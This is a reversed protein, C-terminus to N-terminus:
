KQLNQPEIGELGRSNLGLDFQAAHQVLSVVNGNADTLSNNIPRFGSFSGDANAYEEHRLDNGSVVAHESNQVQHMNTNSFTVNVFKTSHVNADKMVVNTLDAGELNAGSLDAGELNAGTLDANSLNAGILTAHLLNVGRLNAGSLNVGSLVAGSLNAEELVLGSMDKGSSLTVNSFNVSTLSKDKLVHFNVNSLNNAQSFDVGNVNAGDLKVGSLDANTLNCSVDLTVGSLDAGVLHANTLDVNVLSLGDLHANNLHTGVLHVSTLEGSEVKTLDVGTLNLGNLNIHSFKKFVKGSLASLTDVSNQMDVGSLDSGSLDTGTLVASHLSVGELKIGSLDVNTLNASKLNVHSFDASPDFIADVLTANEFDVGKLNKVTSFDVNTLNVNTLHASSLDSNEFIDTNNALNTASNFNAHQLESNALVVNNLNASNLKANHLKVGSMDVGSMDAERLDINHMAVGTLHTSELNARVLSAHMLSVGSLDLNSLNAESGFNVHDLILGISNNLSHNLSLKKAATDMSLNAGSLDTKTVEGTVPEVAGNFSIDVLSANSLNAGELSLGALDVGSITSGSAKLNKLNKADENHKLGDAATHYPEDVKLLNVNVLTANTLDTHFLNCGALNTGTLDAGVLNAGSLDTGNLSVDVTSNLVAGQLQAEVMSLNHLDTKAFTVNEFVSGDLVTEQSDDMVNFDAGELSTDKFVVNTLNGAVCVGPTFDVNEFRGGSMDPNGLNSAFISSLKLNKFEVGTLSAEAFRVGSLMTDQNGTGEFVSHNLSSQMLNVEELKTRIFKGNEVNSKELNARTFTADTFDAHSVNTGHQFIVGSFDANNFKAYDLTDSIANFTNGDKVIIELGSADVNTMDVNSMDANIWEGNEQYVFRSDVITANTLNVNTMDSVIVSNTLDAGSMDVGSFDIKMWRKPDVQDTTGVNLNAGQFNYLENNGNYSKLESYVQGAAARKVNNEISYDFTTVNTIFDTSVPNSQDMYSGDFLYNLGKPMVLGTISKGAVEVVVDGAINKVGEFITANLNCNNLNVNHMVCGSFDTNSLNSGTFDVDVLVSGKFDTGTLDTHKFQCKHFGLNSLNFGALNTDNFEMHSMNKIDFQKSGSGLVPDVYEVRLEGVGPLDSEFINQFIDGNNASSGFTTKNFKTTTQGNVPNFGHIKAGSLTLGSVNASTFNVGRLDIKDFNANTMLAGSLDVGQNTSSFESEGSGIITFHTEAVLATFNYGTTTYFRNMQATQKDFDGSVGYKPDSLGAINKDRKERKALSNYAWYGGNFGFQTFSGTSDLWRTEGNGKVLKILNAQSNYDWTTTAQGGTDVNIGAPWLASNWNKIFAFNTNQIKSFRFDCGGVDCGSFDANTLDANVFNAGKVGDMDGQVQDKTNTFKVNTCNSYSLNVDRLNTGTVDMDTIDQGMLNIRRLNEDVFAKSVDVFAHGSFVVDSNYESRGVIDVIGKQGNVKDSTPYGRVKELFTPMDVKNPSNTASDYDFGLPWKAKDANKMGTFLVNSIDSNSFNAGTVDVGSFNVGSLDVNSFDVNQLVVNPKFVANELTPKTYNVGNLELHGGFSSDTLNENDFTVGKFNERGADLQVKLSPTNIIGDGNEIVSFDVGVPWKALNANTAGAFNTNEFKADKHEGLNDRLAQTSTVNVKGENYVEISDVVVVGENYPVVNSVAVNGEYYHGTPIGNISGTSTITGEDYLRSHTVTITGDIAEGVNTVTIRGDEAHKSGTVTFNGVGHEVVSSVIIEGERYSESSNVSFTGDNPDNVVSNVTIRGDENFKSASVTFTGDNVESVNNVTVRGDASFKAASVTMTGDNVAGVGTVTVRGDANFKAASVTMTGDNVAGVTTVNVRGDANFKAASVTLQGLSNHIASSVTVTNESHFNTASVNIPVNEVAARVNSILIEGDHEMKSYTGISPAPIPGLENVGAKLPLTASNSTHGEPVTNGVEYEYNNIELITGPTPYNLTGSTIATLTTASLTLNYWSGQITVDDIGPEDIYQSVVESNDSVLQFRTNHPNNSSALGVMSTLDIAKITELSGVDSLYLVGRTPSAVTSTAVVNYISHTQNNPFYQTNGTSVLKVTEGNAPANGTWNDGLTVKLLRQNTAVETISEIEGESGTMYSSSGGIHTFTIAGNTGETSLPPYFVGSFKAINVVIENPADNVGNFGSYTKAVYFFRIVGGQTQQLETGRKLTQETGTHVGWFNIGANLKIRYSKTEGVINSNMVSPIADVVYDHQHLNVRYMGPIPTINGNEITIETATGAANAKVTRQIGSLDTLTDSNMALGNQLGAGQLNVISNSIDLISETSNGSQYYWTGTKMPTKSIDHSIHIHSDPNAGLGTYDQSLTFSNGSPDVIQEGNSIDAGHDTTLLSKSRDINIEYVGQNIIDGNNNIVVETAGQNGAIAVNYDDGNDNTFTTSTTINSNHTSLTLKTQNPNYVEWQKNNNVNDSSVSTNGGNLVLIDNENAHDFPQALDWAGGSPDEIYAPLAINSNFNTTLLSKSRDINIAYSGTNLTDGNNDVEISTANADADVAIFYDVDTADNTIKTTRTLATNHGTTLTLESHVPNPNIIWTGTKMVANNAHGIKVDGGSFADVLTYVVGSPDVVQTGNAINSNHNTTLLSKSRDINVAYTGNVLTDGNNNVFLDTATNTADEALIYDVGSADNTLKTVNKTLATGHAAHLTLKSQAHNPNIIWTGTNMVANTTHGIEVDSHTAHEYKRSLTYESGTSDVVVTGNEIDSNHDTTLLSKSRIINVAYTGNVLTDGNNSVFLDTATNTADEALTYDIGSSENTIKTVNKQLASGHTAALSLKTQDYTPNIQWTGPGSTDIAPNLGHAVVVNASNGGAPAVYDSDVTYIRKNPAGISVGANIGANHTTTLLSKSRDINVVYDGNSISNNGNNFVYLSNATAAANESLHMDNSDGVKTVTNTTNLSTSHTSSLGLESVSSGRPNIKWTKNLGEVHQGEVNLKNDGSSYDHKLRWNNGSADVLNVNCPINSTHPTTLHLTTKSNDYNLLYKGASPVNAGRTVLVSSSTSLEESAVPYTINASEEHLTDTVNLGNNGVANNLNLKRVADNPTIVWSGTVAGSGLGSNVKVDGAGSYGESSIIHSGGNPDNVTTGAAISNSYDSTLQTKTRDINVIYEGADPTNNGKVIFLENSNANADRAISYDVGSGDKTVTDSNSLSSDHASSITLKRQTDQPNVKWTGTGSTGVSLIGGHNITLTSDNTNYSVDLAYRVGNSNELNVGKNINNDFVGTLITKTPDHEILYNGDIPLAIDENAVYNKSQVVILEDTGATYTNVVSYSLDNSTSHLLHQGSLVNKGYGNHALVGKNKNLNLKYTESTPTNGSNNVVITSDNAANYSQVLTYNKDSTSTLKDSAHNLDSGFSTTLISKTVDKNIHYSGAVVDVNNDSKTNVEIHSDTQYNYNVSLTFKEDVNNITTTLHDVGATLNKSNNNTELFTKTVDKNVLYEGPTPDPKGDSTVVVVNDTSAYDSNIPYSDTDNHLTDNVSSLNNNYNTTLYHTNDPLDENWPGPQPLNTFEVGTLDVGEFSANKLDAGHLSLQNISNIDKFSADELKSENMNVNTLNAGSFDANFLTSGNLNVNNLTTNFFNLETDSSGLVLGSMDQNTITDDKVDTYQDTFTSEYSASLAEGPTPDKVKNSPRCVGTDPDNKYANSFKIGNDNYLFTNVLLGDENRDWGMAKLLNFGPVFKPLANKFQTRVKPDVEQKIPLTSGKRSGAISFKTTTSIAGNEEDAGKAYPIFFDGTTVRLVKTSNKNQNIKYESTLKATWPGSGILIIGDGLNAHTFDAKYLNCQFFTAGSLDAGSFDVYGLDSDDFITGVCSANKFSCHTLDSRANGARAATDDMVPGFNAGDLIAGEFNSNRMQVSCLTSNKFNVNKFNTGPWFTMTLDVNEFNTRPKGDTIDQDSVSFDYHPSYIENASRVIRLNGALDQEIRPAVESVGVSKVNPFGYYNPANGNFDWQARSKNSFLDSALPDRWSELSNNDDNSNYAPFWTVIYNKNINKMNNDPLSNVYHSKNAFEWFQRAPTDSFDLGGASPIGGRLKSLANVANNISPALKITTTDAGDNGAVTEEHDTPEIGVGYPWHAVATFNRKDEEGDFDAGILIEDADTIPTTVNKERVGRIATSNDTTTKVIANNFKAVLSTNYDAFKTPNGDNSVSGLGTDIQGSVIIGSLITNRFNAGALDAGRLDVNTLNAGDFQANRLNADALVSGTLDAGSFNTSEANANRLKVNKLSAESFNSNSINIQTSVLDSIPTDDLNVKRFLKNQMDTVGARLRELNTPGDIRLGYNNTKINSITLSGDVSSIDSVYIRGADNNASDIGSVYNPNALWGVSAIENVIIEERDADYYTFSVKSKQGELNGNRQLWKENNGSVDLTANTINNFLKNAFGPPLKDKNIGNLDSTKGDVSINKISTNKFIASRLDSHFKHLFLKEQIVRFSNEEDQDPSGLTPYGDDEASIQNVNNLLNYVSEQIAEAAAEYLGRQEGIRSPELEEKSEKVDDDLTEWTEWSVKKPVKCLAIGDLIADTFDCSSFNCSSTNLEQVEAEKFSTGVLSCEIMDVKVVKAVGNIYAKDTIPHFTAGDLNCNDFSTETIHCGDFQCNKFSCKYFLCDEIKIKRFDSNEFDVGFIKSSNLKLGHYSKNINDYNENYFTSNKANIMEETNSQRHVKAGDKDAWHGRVYTYDLQFKGGKNMYTKYGVHQNSKKIHMDKVSGNYTFDTEPMVLVGATLKWFGSVMKVGSKQLVGNVEYANKEYNLHAGSIKVDSLQLGGQLVGEENRSYYGVPWDITELDKISYGDFNTNNLIAYKIDINNLFNKRNKLLDEKAQELEDGSLSPNLYDLEDGIITFSVETLDCPNKETGFSSNRVDCYELVANSLNSGQFDCNNLVSYEFDCGTFDVNTLLTRKSGDAVMSKMDPNGSINKVNNFNMGTIKAYNFVLSNNLTAEEFKSFRLDVGGGLQKKRYDRIVVLDNLQAETPFRLVNSPPLFDDNGNISKIPGFTSEPHTIIAKTFNAYALDADAFSVAGEFKAEVFSISPSGENIEDTPEDPNVLLNINKFYTWNENNADYTSYAKNFNAYLLECNNFNLGEINTGVAQLNQLRLPESTYELDTPDYIIGNYNVGSSTTKSLYAGPPADASIKDTIGNINLRGEIIQYYIDPNSYKRTSYNPQFGNRIFIKQLGYPWSRNEGSEIASDNTFYIKFQEFNAMETPDYGLLEKGKVNDWYIFTDSLITSRRDTITNGDQLTVNDSTKVNSSRFKAGTLKFNAFTAGTLDCGGFTAGALLKTEGLVTIEKEELSSEIFSANILDSGNFHCDQVVAHDFIANNLSCDLFTCNTLTVGSFDVGTLEAGSFNVDTIEQLETLNLSSPVSNVFDANRLDKSGYKVMIFPTPDNVTEERRLYSPTTGIPFSREEHLGADAAKNVATWVDEKVYLNKFASNQLKKPAFQVDYMEIWNAKIDTCDVHFKINAFRSGRIDAGTFDADLVRTKIQDTNVSGDSNLWIEGGTEPIVWEGANVGSPAKYSFESTNVFYVVGTSKKRRTPGYKQPGTADIGLASATVNKFSTNSYVNDLFIADHLISGDFVCDTLDCYRFIVNQLQANSFNSGNLKLLKEKTGSFIAPYLRTSYAEVADPLYNVDSEWERGNFYAGSFNVNQASLLGQFDQGPGTYWRQGCCIFPDRAGSSLGKWPGRSFYPVNYNDVFDKIASKIERGQQLFPNGLDLLPANQDDMLDRLYETGFYLNWRLNSPFTLNDISKLPEITVTLNKFNSDKEGTKSNWIINKIIKTTIGGRNVQIYNGDQKLIDHDIHYKYINQRKTNDLQLGALFKLTDSVTVRTTGSNFAQEQTFFGPLENFHLGYEANEIFPSGWVAKFGPLNSESSPININSDDSLADHTGLSHQYEEWKKWTLMSGDAKKGKNAEVEASWETTYFTPKIDFDGFGLPFITESNFTCRNFTTNNIITNVLNAGEFNCNKFVCNTLDSGTFDGDKFNRDTYSGSGKPVGYNQLILNNVRPKYFKELSEFLGLNYAREFTTQQTVVTLDAKEQAVQAVVDVVQTVVNDTYVQNLKLDFGTDDAFTVKPFNTELIGSIESKAVVTMAVAFYQGALSPSYEKEGPNHLDISIIGLAPNKQIDSALVSYIQNKYPTNKAANRAKELTNGYGFKIDKYQYIGNKSSTTFNGKQLNLVLKPEKLNNKTAQTTFLIQNKEVAVKPIDDLQKKAIRKEEIEVMEAETPQSWGGNAYSFTFSSGPLLIDDDGILIKVNTYSNKVNNYQLEWLIKTQTTVKTKEPDNSSFKDYVGYPYFYKLRDRYGNATTVDEETIGLDELTENPVIGLYQDVKHILTLAELDDANITTNGLISGYVENDGM